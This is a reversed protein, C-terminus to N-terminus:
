KSIGTTYGDKKKKLAKELQDADIGEKQLLKKGKHVKEAMKDFSTM